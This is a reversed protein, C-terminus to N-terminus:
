DLVWAGAFEHGLNYSDQAARRALVLSARMAPIWGPQERGLRLAARHGDLLMPGMIGRLPCKPRRPADRTEQRSLWADRSRFCTWVNQVYKTCQTDMAEVVSM